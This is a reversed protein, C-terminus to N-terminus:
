SRLAAALASGWPSSRGRVPRGRPDDAAATIDALSGEGADDARRAAHVRLRQRAARPGSDARLLRDRDRRGRDGRLAAGAGRLLRAARSRGAPRHDRGRDARRAPRSRRSGTGDAATLTLDRPRAGRGRDARDAAPQRSRLVHARGGEHAGPYTASRRSDCTDAILAAPSRSMSGMRPRRDDGRRPGRSSCRGCRTSRRVLDRPVLAALQGGDGVAGPALDPRRAPSGRGSSNRLSRASWGFATSRREVGVGPVAPSSGPRRGTWVPLDDNRRARAARASLRTTSTIVNWGGLGGARPDAPTSSRRAGVGAVQEQGEVFAAPRSCMMARKLAAALASPIARKESGPRGDDDISLAHGPQEPGPAEGPRRAVSLRAM